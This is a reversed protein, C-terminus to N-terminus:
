FLKFLVNQGWTEEFAWTINGIYVTSYHDIDTVTNEIERYITWTFPQQTQIVEPLAFINSISRKINKFHEPFIYNM